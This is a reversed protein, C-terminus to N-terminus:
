AVGGSERLTEVYDRLSDAPIRRCGGIKVSQLSGAAMLMYVTRRSLGLVEAAEDAKLLLREM